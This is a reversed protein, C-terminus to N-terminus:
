NYKVVYVKVVDITANVWARPAQHLSCLAKEVKYVKDPFDPDEFGPPQCIIFDKFSAYALFLRIAEKRAVPAFVEDYDIGEKQTHGHAVLRAKNRIVIGREDMNNRFVWKSSIARKGQPLDVVLGHEELNKLMRRTQPASHLDEIVKELPHDKHIRTILILSVQFTSDLNHFDAEAGFVDEDDHSDECIGIDELSPMNPDPPLNISINIGVDNVRSSSADHINSTVINVSNTSNTSDEDGQDNCKNEKSLDEDVMKAGDNSPQFENDQSSKSTTSLPLDATWLPLLVYDRDLEKEKGVNNLTNENFRDHLNEEVIRTRSNFVRFAKSNLSYGVFFGEDAKRDFKGLHDITNLITVLCGFPRLFSIAPTRGHFLEYPTKNHPKTVLVRNQVYCATAWFTTPMKLDALMTMAAKILTRNRRKAVRNQQPTRAVSYQRIIGRVLNGKELKNITKFNLHWLWRHWLKSEDETAQLRGEKLIEELPLRDGMLKRIIRCTSAKIANGRKGKVVNYRAKVKHPDKSKFLDKDKEKFLRWLADLDERDFAKLMDEFSQYAESVEVEARLKKFSEQLLTKKSVRKKSPEEVDKNPIFLTQVKNYEREFIPRVKEDDFVTPEAVNVEKAVVNDDDKREIREQLEVDVDVKTEMDVLTIDEDADIAEIRGWSEKVAKFWFAKIEEEERIEKCTEILTNLLTLDYAFTTTPQEQPPSSPPAPQAQLPSTIPERLPSSPEHTPSPPTPTAPVEDDKDEEKTAAQPQVLMTAFLPTEIGSFGKGIKSFNFKRGTALCIVASAMSCNFENWATRKASMCQVLTQILIKWEVLFFAKYFILTPPPKEYGMRTLETFIEENPLCDVGDADDLRLDQHIFVETVVVKKWRLIYLLGEVDSVQSWSILRCGQFQCGGITSKRDLSAEPYDSYIHVDVDESDPDKLLPKKTDIPTSATKGDQEKVMMEMSRIQPATTLNGIIQSVHHYKHVRTTPIPSVSINTELNSFDAEAGVDEEDDLYIIDELAPVNDFPSAANFSNTSNTPNPGVIIVPASAPNVRHTSNVSFEKFEDSLDRIGIYLDVHSKGKAERKAKDDHKKPKDSSSPSVQVKNENENVDFADDADTNHPDQSGTSWLPLLVYQQASKTEKRVKGADLNEKIGASSNPQNGVVVPQYNMSRTLTNIDFQWKPRSREVNPQNELFNIHLTEQVIRTRSNFVRFAKNNVSYGVLFREDAKGDFKRLPDLTNHITVLCRFPRMFGISPTRGLLLEYPTKNHPKTVLIRNQVYCVTNVTEAWFPIPLLSDALMIRAAENLTRNKRETIGNQQPTRAVSFERKIRKMECFKSPLGRVLNGKVLKNMTKFNIHGLRKHWLNSENLTAKVFLCTLDRLPVVNKLDVNYINNERPVRLLVHNEDSPKFDSSLVVCETNKSTIKGGKPNGGFAVYGGNFAEFDLGMRRTYERPTYISGEGYMSLTNTKM